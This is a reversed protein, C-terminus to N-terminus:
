AAQWDHVHVLEPRWGPMAGEAILAGALSLAGFRRWNDPYDKGTEDVYPGGARRYFAPADLILMSAGDITVELVTAKEGLLDNLVLRVEPDRVKSMVSPYGPLLTKMDAGYPKLAAPLAGAVDALGGTKILPFVESAVSLVRM